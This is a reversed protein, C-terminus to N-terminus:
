CVTGIKGNLACYNICTGGAEVVLFESNKKWQMYEHKANYVTIIVRLM